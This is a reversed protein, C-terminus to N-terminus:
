KQPPRKASYSKLKGALAQWDEPKRAECIYQIRGKQDIAFITPFGFSGYPMLMALELSTKGSADVYTPWKLELKDLQEKAQMRLSEVVLTKQSFAITVPSYESYDLYIKQIDQLEEQASNSEPSWLYLLIPRGVLQQSTLPQDTNLLPELSLAPLPKGEASRSRDTGLWALFLIGMLMFLGCVALFMLPNGKPALPADNNPPMVASDELM